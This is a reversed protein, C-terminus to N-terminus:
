TEGDVLESLARKSESNGRISFIVAMPSPTKDAQVLMSNNTGNKIPPMSVPM